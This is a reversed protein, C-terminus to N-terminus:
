PGGEITYILYCGVRELIYLEMVTLGGTSPAFIPDSSGFLTPVSGVQALPGISQDVVQQWLFCHNSAPQCWDAGACEHLNSYDRGAYSIRYPLRDQGPLAYGFHNATWPQFAGWALGALLVLAVGFLIGLRARWALRRM